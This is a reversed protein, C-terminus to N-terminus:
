LLAHLICAGCVAYVFSAYGLVGCLCCHQCYHVWVQTCSMRVRAACILVFDLRRLAPSHMGFCQLCACHPLMMTVGLLDGDDHASAHPVAIFTVVTSM